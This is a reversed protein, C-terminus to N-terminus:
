AKHHVQSRAQKEIELFENVKHSILQMADRGQRSQGLGVFQFGAECVAGTWEAHRFQADAFVAQGKTGFVLRVGVVDGVDFLDALDTETRFRFGGASINTVSGLFVPHSQDPGTPEAERGGHWLSARVIRNAPVDAREFARRSIRRMARPMVLSMVEGDVTDAWDHHQLGSITTSCIYKYHKLKFSVSVIDGQGFRHAAGGRDVAPSALHFQGRGLGVLRSHLNIWHNGDRITIVVPTSRDAASVISEAIESPNLEHMASM